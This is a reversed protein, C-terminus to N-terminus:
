RRYVAPQVYTLGHDVGALSESHGVLLWGGPRLIERFRGVLAHQTPKDFYIMVNRCLVVDFPGRMPWPGLLNLRAFRVPARVEDRVRWARGNRAEAPDFHAAVLHRPVERVSDDAYVGERAAALVRTSLDTALIRADWDAFAPGLADRLVISLTYPEEGTSCGACWIRIRRDAQEPLVCRRLVEFHAPERFFSTKNTTLCDIMTVVEDPDEELRALYAEFSPLDLLRLRKLLRSKVLEEKGPPLSIGTLRYAAEAIRDFESRGLRVALVDVPM